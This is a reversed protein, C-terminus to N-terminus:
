KPFLMMICKPKIYHYSSLIKTINSFNIRLNKHVYKSVGLTM